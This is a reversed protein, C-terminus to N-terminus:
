KAKSKCYDRGAQTLYYKTGSVGVVDEVMKKSVLTEMAHRAQGTNMSMRDAITQILVGREGEQLLIKLVKVLDEKKERERHISPAPEPKGRPIARKATRVKWVVMDSHEEKVIDGRQFRYVLQIIKVLLAIVILNIMILFWIPIAVSQTLFSM